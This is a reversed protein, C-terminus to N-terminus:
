PECIQSTIPYSAKDQQSPDFKNDRYKEERYFCDQHATASVNSNELIQLQCYFEPGRMDRIHTTLQQESPTQTACQGHNVLRLLQPTTNISATM